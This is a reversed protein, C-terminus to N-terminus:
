GGFRMSRSTLRAVAALLEEPVVPKGLQLQFGALLARTHDEGTALAIAPM